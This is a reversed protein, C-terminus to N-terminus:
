GKLGNRLQTNDATRDLLLKDTRRLAGMPVRNFAVSIPLESDLSPLFPVVEMEICITEDDNCAFVIHAEESDSWVGDEEIGSWGSGLFRRDEIPTPIIEYRYKTGLDGMEVCDGLQRFCNIGIGTLIKQDWSDIAAGLKSRILEIEAESLVIPPKRVEGLEVKGFNLPIQLFGSLQDLADYPNEVLDEYKLFFCRPGASSAISLMMRANRIFNDAYYHHLAGADQWDDLGIEAMNKRNIM